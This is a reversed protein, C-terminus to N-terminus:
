VPAESISTSTVPVSIGHENDVNLDSSLSVLDNCEWPALALIHCLMGPKLLSNIIKRDKLNGVM